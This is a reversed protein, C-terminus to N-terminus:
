LMRVITDEVVSAVWGTFSVSGRMLWNFFRDRQSFVYRGLAKLMAAALWEALVEPGSLVHALARILSDLLTGLARLQDLAWDIVNTILTRLETIAWQAWRSLQQVLEVIENRVRAIVDGIWRTVTSVAANVQAPVWVFRIWMLGYVVTTAFTTLHARVAAFTNYLNGIANGVMNWLWSIYGTVKRLGSLLWNVGPRFFGPVISLMWDFIAVFM